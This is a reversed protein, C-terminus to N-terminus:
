KGDMSVDKKEDHLQCVEEGVTDNIVKLWKNLLSYKKTVQIAENKTMPSWHDACLTGTKMDRVSWGHFVHAKMDGTGHNEKRFVILKPQKKRSNQIKYIEKRLEKLKEDLDMEDLLWSDCFDKHEKIEDPLIIDKMM